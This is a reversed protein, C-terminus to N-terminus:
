DDPQSDGCRITERAVMAAAEIPDENGWLCRTRIGTRSEFWGPPKSFLPDIASALQRKSGLRVAIGSLWAEPL